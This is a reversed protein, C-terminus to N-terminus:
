VTVVIVLLGQVEEEVRRTCPPTEVGRNRAPCKVNKGDGRLELGRARPPHNSTSARTFTSRADHESGTKSRRRLQEGSFRSAGAIGPGTKVGPPAIPHAQADRRPQGPNEGAVNPGILRGPIARGRDARGDPDGARPRRC